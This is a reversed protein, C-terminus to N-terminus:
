FLFFIPSGENKWPYGQFSLPITPWRYLFPTYRKKAGKKRQSSQGDWFFPLHSTRQTCWFFGSPGSHGLGAKQPIKKKQCGRNKFFIGSRRKQGPSKKQMARPSISRNCLNTEWFQKGDEITKAQRGKNVHQKESGWFKSLIWFFFWVFDLCFESLLESLFESLLESLIWPFSLSFESLFNLCINLCFNLRFESLIWVFESM